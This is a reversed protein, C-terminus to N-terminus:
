TLLGTESIHKKFATRVMHWLMMTPNTRSREVTLKALEVGRDNSIM